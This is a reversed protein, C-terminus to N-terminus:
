AGLERLFASFGTMAGFLPGFSRILHKRNWTALLMNVNDLEIAKPGTGNRVRDALEFLQNNIPFVFLITYPIMSLSLAGAIMYRIYSKKQAHRRYAIFGYLSTLAISAPPMVDTGLDYLAAFQRLKQASSQDTGLVLPITFYWISVMFGSLFSGGILAVIQLSSSRASTM